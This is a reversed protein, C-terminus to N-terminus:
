LIRNENYCALIYSPNEYYLSSNYNDLKEIIFSSLVKMLTDIHKKENNDVQLILRQYIRGM